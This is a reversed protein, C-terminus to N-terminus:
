SKDKVSSKQKMMDAAMAEAYRDIVAKELKDKFKNPWYQNNEGFKKHFQTAIDDALKNFDIKKAVKAALEDLHDNIVKSSLQAAQPPETKIGYETRYEVGTFYTKVIEQLIAEELSM